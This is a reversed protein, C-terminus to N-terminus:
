NNSHKKPKLLIEPKYIAIIERVEKLAETLLIMIRDLREIRDSLENAENRKSPNM